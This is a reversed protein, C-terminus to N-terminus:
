VSNSIFMQLYVRCRIKVNKMDKSVGGRRQTRGNWTPNNSKSLSWFIQLIGLCLLFIKLEKQSRVKGEKQSTMQSQFRSKVKFLVKLLCAGLCHLLSHCGSNLNAYFLKCNRRTAGRSILCTISKNERSM